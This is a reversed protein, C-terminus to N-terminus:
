KLKRIHTEMASMVKRSAARLQKDIEKTLENNTKRVNPSLFASLGHDITEQFQALFEPLKEQFNNADLSPKRQKLTLLINSGRLFFLPMQIFFQLWSLAITRKVDTKGDKNYMSAFAQNYHYLVIKVYFAFMSGLKELETFKVGIAAGQVRMAKYHKADLLFNQLLRQVLIEDKTLPLLQVQLETYKQKYAEYTPINENNSEESGTVCIGNIIEGSCTNTQKQLQLYEVIATTITQVDTSAQLSEGGAKFLLSWPENSAILDEVIDITTKNVCKMDAEVFSAREITVRTGEAPVNFQPNILVRFIRDGVNQVGTITSSFGTEAKLTNGVVIDLPDLVQIVYQPIENAYTTKLLGTIPPQQTHHQTQGLAICLEGATTNTTRLADTYISLLLSRHTNLYQKVDDITWEQEQGDERGMGLEQENGEEM